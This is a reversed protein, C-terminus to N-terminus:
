PTGSSEIGAVWLRRFRVVRWKIHGGGAGEVIAVASELEGLKWWLWPAM